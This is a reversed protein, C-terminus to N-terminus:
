QVAAKARRRDKEAFYDDYGGKYTEVGIGTFEIIFDPIKNLMYRDHSVMLLTGEYEQLAEELVEKSPLDLHNTPEDLLLVNGHQLM